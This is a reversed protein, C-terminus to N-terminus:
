TNSCCKPGKSCLEDGVLPWHASNLLFGFCSDTPKNNLSAMAPMLGVKRLGLTGKRGLFPGLFQCFCMNWHDGVTWCCNRNKGPELAPSGREELDRPYTQLSEGVGSTLLRSQKEAPGTDLTDGPRKRSSMTNPTRFASSLHTPCVGTCDTWLKSRLYLCVGRYEWSPHLLRVSQTQQAASLGDVPEVSGTDVSGQLAGPLRHWCEM